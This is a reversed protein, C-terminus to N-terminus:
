PHRGSLRGPCRLFLPFLCVRRVQAPLPDKNGDTSYGLFCKRSSAIFAGEGGVRMAGNQGREVFVSRWKDMRTQLCGFIRAKFKLIHAKYKLICPVYKKKAGLPPM